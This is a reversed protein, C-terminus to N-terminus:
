FPEKRFQRPSVGTMRSFFKSFSPVDAFHLAGAIQEADMRTSRLLSKAESVLLLNIHDVVTRGSMKKVVRSLYIPTIGLEGAYFPIDHHLAFNVPLLKLFAIYLDKMRASKEAEDESIDEFNKLEYLFVTYLHKVIEEKCKNTSICYDRIKEMVSLISSANLLPLHLKPEHLDVVPRFVIRVFDTESGIEISLQEDALLCIGRYDESSSIISVPLGPLYIYLDGPVLTIEDGLYRISLWGNLVLTFTYASIFGQTRNARFTTEADTDNCIIKGDWGEYPPNGHMKLWAEELNYMSYYKEAFICLFPSNTKNSVLQTKNRIIM